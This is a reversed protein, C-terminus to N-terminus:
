FMDNRTLMHNGSFRDFAGEWETLSLNLVDCSVVTYLFTLGLLALKKSEM